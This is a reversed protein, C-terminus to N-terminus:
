ATAAAIINNFLSTDLYAKFVIREAPTPAMLTLTFVLQGAAIATASNEAPDFTCVSGLVLAGRQILSNIFGNCTSRIEDILANANIPKDIFQLMALELSDYVTDAVRRVCVFNNPSTTAPYASSRNGWKRVGTGFANFVTSIGVENLLNTDSNPDSLAAVVKREVGENGLIVNNSDSFWFGDRNDIYNRLGAAFTSFPVNKLTGTSPDTRKIHPYLLEVRENSVNFGISGSPGRGTIAGAVTTGIPADVYAIGRTKDALAQM